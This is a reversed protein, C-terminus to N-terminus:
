PTKALRFGVFSSRNDLSLNFRTTTWCEKPMSIWAGGRLVRYLGSNAGKPNRSLFAIPYPGYIDSCWEYINGSMDYLGLGNPCGLSGVITTAQRDIGGLSHSSPSWTGNFNIELPNAVNKGNGFIANAGRSRAAFEWEAETPLRYQSGPYHDNLKQLFEQVDNWSVQEVPCKDCNNFYSPNTGMVERWQKQTVEYKGIYFDNLSVDHGECNNNEDTCGMTFTGGRVLVLGYEDVGSLKKTAEEKYRSNTYTELFVKYVEYDNSELARLWALEELAESRCIGDPFSKLYYEWVSISNQRRASECTILDQTKATSVCGNRKLFCFVGGQGHGSFYGTEPAPSEVRRLKYELDIFDVIDKDGGIRLAELIAGAFLSKAPTRSLKNGSCLFQRVKYKVGNQLRTQCDYPNQDDPKDPRSRYRDGFAGSYCADLGVLMHHAKCRAFYASLQDYSLWSDGYKDKALGDSAILYGRKALSDYFGHMSFFLFVRDDAQLIENFRDLTDLIQKKTPNAVLITKVNFNTRLETEILKCEVETEPLPDFGAQFKTVYFFVAYDKGPRSPTQSFAFQYSLCLILLLRFKLLM